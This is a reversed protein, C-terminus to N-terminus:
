SAQVFKMRKHQPAAAATSSSSGGGHSVPAPASMPAGAKKAQHEMARQARKLARGTLHALSDYGGGGGGGNASASSPASSPASAAAAAAPQAPAPASAPAAAGGAAKKAQHEAARQARKLARGTLHSFDQSGGSGSSGGGSSSPPAAAAAAAPPAARQQGFSGSSSRNNNNSSNFPPRPAFPRGGGGGSGGIAPAGRGAGGPGATPARKFESKLRAGPDWETGYFSETFRSANPLGGGLSGGAAGGAGSKSAAYSLAREARRRKRGSLHSLDPGGSPPEAPRRDAASNRYRKANMHEREWRAAAGPKGHIVDRYREEGHGRYDAGAAVYGGGEGDGDGGIAEERFVLPEAEVAAASASSADGGGGFGAFFPDASLDVPPPKAGRGSAVPAADDEDAAPPLIVAPRKKALPAAAAAPVSASEGAPPETAKRRDLTAAKKVADTRKSPKESKNSSGGKGEVAASAAAASLLLARKTAREQQVWEDPESDSPADDDSDDDSDDVEEDDDDEADVDDNDSVDDGDSGEDSEVESGDMADDDGDAGADDEEDDLEITATGQQVALTLRRAIVAAVDKPPETPKDRLYEGAEANRLAWVRMAAVRDAHRRDKSEGKPFLSLYKAHRPYWRIYLLKEQLDRIRGRIDDKSTADDAAAALEKNAKKLARTVKQREFFKVKHYRAGVKHEKKDFKADALQKRLKRLLREKDKVAQKPLDPQLVYYLM